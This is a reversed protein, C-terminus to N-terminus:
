RHIPRAITAYENNHGWNITLYNTQCSQNGLAYVLQILLELCKYTIGFTGCIRVQDNTATSEKSCWATGVTAKPLQYIKTSPQAVPSLSAESREFTLNPKKGKIQGLAAARHM